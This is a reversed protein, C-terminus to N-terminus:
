AMFFVSTKKPKQAMALLSGAFFSQAPREIEFFVWQM